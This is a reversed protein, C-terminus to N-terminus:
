PVYQLWLDGVDAGEEDLVNLVRDKYMHFYLDLDYEEDIHESSDGAMFKEFSKELFTGPRELVEEGTKGQSEELEHEVIEEVNRGSQRSLRSLVGTYAEAATLLNVNRMIQPGFKEPFVKDGYAEMNGVEPNSMEIYTEDETTGVEFRTAGSASAVQEVGFRNSLGPDEYNRDAHEEFIEPDLVPFRKSGVQLDDFERRFRGM